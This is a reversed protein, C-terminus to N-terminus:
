YLEVQSNVIEQRKKLVLLIMISVFSPLESCTTYAHLFILEKRPFFDLKNSSGIPILHRLCCLNRKVHAGIESNDDLVLVM